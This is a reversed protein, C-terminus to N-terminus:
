RRGARDRAAARDRDLYVTLPAAKKITAPDRGFSRCHEALVALKRQQVEPRRAYSLWWDAHEAVVRQADVLGVAPEGVRCRRLGVARVGALGGGAAGAVGGPPVAGAGGVGGSSSGRRMRM